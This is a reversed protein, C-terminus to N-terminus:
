KKKIPYIVQKIVTQNRPFHLSYINHTWIEEKPFIYAKEKM